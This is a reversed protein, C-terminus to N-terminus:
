EKSSTIRKELPSQYSKDKYTHYDLAHQIHGKGTKHNWVAVHHGGQASHKTEHESSPSAHHVIGHRVRDKEFKEKNSYHHSRYATLHYDKYKDYSHSDAGPHHADTKHTPNKKVFAALQKKPYSEALYERFSKM